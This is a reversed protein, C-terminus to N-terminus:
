TRPSRSRSSNSKTNNQFPVSILDAVPNQVKKALEEASQEEALLPVDLIVMIVVSLILTVIKQKICRDM